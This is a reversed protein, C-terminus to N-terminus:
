AIRRFATAWRRLASGSSPATIVRVPTITTTRTLPALPSRITPQPRVTNTVQASPSLLVSSPEGTTTLAAPQGIVAASQTVQAPSRSAAHITQVPAVVVLALVFWYTLQQMTTDRNVFSRVGGTPHGTTPRVSM